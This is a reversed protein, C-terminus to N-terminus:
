TAFMGCYIMFYFIFFISIIIKIIPKWEKYYWMLFIGVPTIFILMIIMFWNRQFVPPKENENNDNNYYGQYNNEESAQQYFSNNNNESNDVAQYNPSYYVDTKKRKDKKSTKVDVFSLGTGPIGVSTTKTGKSNVTYHAGKGGFTLSTSNKNFNLKLGPAIKISRKFRFNGM